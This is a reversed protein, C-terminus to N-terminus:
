VSFVEVMSRPIMHSAICRKSTSQTIVCAKDSARVSERFYKEQDLDVSPLRFVSTRVLLNNRSKEAIDSTDAVPFELESNAAVKHKDIRTPRALQKSPTQTPTVKPTENLTRTPTARTPM